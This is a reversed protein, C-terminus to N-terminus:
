DLQIRQLKKISGRQDIPVIIFNIQNQNKLMLLHISTNQHSNTCPVFAVGLRHIDDNRSPHIIVYDNYEFVEATETTWHTEAIVLIIVKLRKMEVNWTAINTVTCGNQLDCGCGGLKM